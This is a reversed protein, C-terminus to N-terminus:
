KYVDISHCKSQFVYLSIIASVTSVLLVLLLVFFCNVRTNRTQSKVQICCEDNREEASRATQGGNGIPSFYM